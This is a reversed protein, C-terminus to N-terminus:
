KRKLRLSKIRKLIKSRLKQSLANFQIPKRVAISNIKNLGVNCGCGTM